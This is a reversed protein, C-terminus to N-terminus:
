MGTIWCLSDEGIAEVANYSILFLFFERSLFPSFHILYSVQSQHIFELHASRSNCVDVPVQWNKTIIPQQGGVQM